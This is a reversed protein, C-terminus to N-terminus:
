DVKRSSIVVKKELNKHSSKKPAMFERESVEM